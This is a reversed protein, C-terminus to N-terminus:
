RLGANPPDVNVLSTDKWAISADRFTFTITGCVLIVSVQDAARSRAFSPKQGAKSFRGGSLASQSGARHKPGAQKAQRCDNTGGVAIGTWSCHV